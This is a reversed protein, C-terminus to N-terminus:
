ARKKAGDLKRLAVQAAAVVAKWEPLDNLEQVQPLPSRLRKVSADFVQSFEDIARLEEASFLREFRERHDSATRDGQAEVGAPEVYFDDFWGCILELPVFVYPVRAQYALQDKPSALLRLTELISSRAGSEDAMRRRWM